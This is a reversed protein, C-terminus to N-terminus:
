NDEFLSGAVWDEINLASRFAGGSVSSESGYATNFLGGSVSSYNGSLTNTSGAVLGGFSSFNHEKGVVLNHSGSRDDGAGRLENYGVILNGAGDVVGDTTGTGNVIQVNIGHLRLTLVTGGLGDPLQVMDMHNLFEVLDAGGGATLPAPLRV